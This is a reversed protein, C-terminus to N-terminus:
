PRIAPAKGIFLVGAPVQFGWDPKPRTLAMRDILATSTRRTTEVLGAALEVTVEAGPAIVTVNLLGTLKAVTLADSRTKVPAGAPTETTTPVGTATSLGVSGVMMWNGILKELGTPVRALPVYEKSTVPGTMESSSLARAVYPGTEKVSASVVAGRITLVESLPRVTVIVNSLASSGAVTVSLLM